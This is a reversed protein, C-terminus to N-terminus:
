HVRLLVFLHGMIWEGKDKRLKSNHRALVKWGTKKCLTEIYDVSHGFRGTQKLEFHEQTAEEVSFLFLGNKTITSCCAMFIKELNGMYTFVDAALILDYKETTNQLFHLIDDKILMTYLDKTNAVKLMEESIDVGIFTNCCQRFQEGGLGTGCGLDLCSDRSDDPLVSCYQDWLAKPTRYHLNEVLSQEFDKAYNNFVAKVYELPASEPTHGSLSNLMHKAAQHRPNLKLLHSYLTKAKEIDGAKHCLYAYNNISSLHDPDQSLILTYVRGAESYDELDQHCLALNYLTDVSTDGLKFAHEFSVSAEKFKSLRRFNLGRNYHIDSDEPNITSAHHYHQEAQVFDQLEYFALGCNFHLLPSAPVITLLEKYADIAADIQDNEHLHCAHQFRKELEQTSPSSNPINKTM